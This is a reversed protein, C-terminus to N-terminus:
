SLIICATSVHGIHAEEDHVEEAAKDEPKRNDKTGSSSDHDEAVKVQKNAETHGAHLAYINVSHQIVHANYTKHEEGHCADSTSHSRCLNTVGLCSGRQLRCGSLRQPDYLGKVRGKQANWALAPQVTVACPSTEHLM